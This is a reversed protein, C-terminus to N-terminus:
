QGSLCQKSLIIQRRWLLQQHGMHVALHMMVSLRLGSRRGQPTGTAPTQSVPIRGGTHLSERWCGTPISPRGNGICHRVPRPNLILGPSLPLGHGGYLRGLAVRRLDVLEGGLSCNGHRGGRGPGGGVQCGEPSSEWLSAQRSGRAKRELSRQHLPELLLSPNSQRSNRGLYINKINCYKLNNCGM